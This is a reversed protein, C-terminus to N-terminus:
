PPLLKRYARRLSTRMGVNGPFIVYPIRGFRSDDPTHVVPVGPLLQGLVRAQPIKLASTLIDAATIGGKVIMFGTKEPLHEAIDCLVKSVSKGFVLQEKMSSCRKEESSTYVVPTKGANRAISVCELAHRVVADSGGPIRNVDIHIGYVTGDKLLVDLQERSRKVFSGAIVVGPSSSAALCERGVLPRRSLFSLTRVVSAASRFLFHRGESLAAHVAYSFRRLDRYNEANVVVYPGGTINVIMKKLERTSTRRLDDLSFSLIPQRSIRSGSKERIYDKLNSSRFGFVPDRAFETDAAPIIENGRRVYHTDDKTIRGGEIFAPVLFVADIKVGYYKEYVQAMVDTELPFHGRLTSDSRSIFMIRHGYEANVQLVTNMIEEIRRAAEGPLHARNNTLIYFFGAKDRLAERVLGPTWATLMLCGHVTQIGTPDDDLVVIKM